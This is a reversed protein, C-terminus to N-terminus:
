VNGYKIYHMNEPTKAPITETQLECTFEIKFHLIPYCMIYQAVTKQLIATGIKNELQNNIQAEKGINNHLGKNQQVRYCGASFSQCNGMPLGSNVKYQNHKNIPRFLQLCPNLLFIYSVNVKTASRFLIIQDIVHQNNKFPLNTLVFHGHFSIHM